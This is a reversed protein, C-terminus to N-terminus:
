AGLHTVEFRYPIFNAPLTKRLLSQKRLLAAQTLLVVMQELQSLPSLHPHGSVNVSSVKMLRQLDTEFSSARDCNAFFCLNGRNVSRVRLLPLGPFSQLVRALLRMDKVSSLCVVPIIPPYMLFVVRGLLDALEVALRLVREVLFADALQYYFLDFVVEIPFYLQSLLQVLM